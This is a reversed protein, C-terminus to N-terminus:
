RTKIRCTKINVKTYWNPLKANSKYIHRKTKEKNVYNSMM